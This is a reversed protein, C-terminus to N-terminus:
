VKLDRSVIEHPEGDCEHVRDMFTLGPIEPSTVPVQYYWGLEDEDVVIHHCRACERSLVSKSITWRGTAPLGGMGKNHAHAHRDSIWEWSRESGEWDFGCSCVASVRVEDGPKLDSM